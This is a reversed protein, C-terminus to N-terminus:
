EGGRRHHEDDAVRQEGLYCYTTRVHQTERM